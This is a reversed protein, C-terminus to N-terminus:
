IVEKYDFQDLYAKIFTYTPGFNILNESNLYTQFVEYFLLDQFHYTKLKEPEIRSKTLYYLSLLVRGEKQDTYYEFFPDPIKMSKVLKQKEALEKAEFESRTLIVTELNNQKTQLGTEGKNIFRLCEHFDIFGIHLHKLRADTLPIQTNAAQEAGMYPRGVTKVDM